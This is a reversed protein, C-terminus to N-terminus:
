GKFTSATIQRKVLEPQAESFTVTADFDLSDIAYSIKGALEETTMDTFNLVGFNTGLVTFSDIGTAVTQIAALIEDAYKDDKVSLNIRVLGDTHAARPNALAALVDKKSEPSAQVNIKRADFTQLQGYGLMAGMFDKKAYGIGYLSDVADQWERM